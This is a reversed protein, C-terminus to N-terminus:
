GRAAGSRPYGAPVPVRLLALNATTPKLFYWDFQALIPRGAGQVM